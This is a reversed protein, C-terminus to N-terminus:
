NSRGSCLAKIIQWADTLVTLSWSLFGPRHQHALPFVFLSLSCHTLSFYWCWTHHLKEVSEGFSLLPAEPGVSESHSWHFTGSLIFVVFYHMLELSSGWRKFEVSHPFFTDFFIVGNAFVFFFSFIFYLTQRCCKANTLTSAQWPRCFFIFRRYVKVLRKDKKEKKKQMKQGKKM